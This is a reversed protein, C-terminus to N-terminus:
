EVDDSGDKPEEAPSEEVEEAPAEVPAEEVPTEEVPAEVVEEEVVPAEEEAVPAATSTDATVTAESSKAEAPANNVSGVRSDGATEQKPKIVLLVVIGVASLGAIVFLVIKWAEMQAKAKAGSDSLSVGLMLVPHYGTEDDQYDYDGHNTKTDDKVAYYGNADKVTYVIMYRYNGDTTVDTSIPNISGGVTIYKEGGEQVKVDAASDYILVWEDGDTTKAGNGSHRYVKYTVTTSSSDTIDLSTPVSYATGVKLGDAMKTKMSSSLAIEPSSTDVAYRKLCFKEWNYETVEEGNKESMYAKFEDTNYPTLVADDKTIDGNEGDVVVYRFMWWGSTQMSFTDSAKVRSWHEDKPDDTNSCYEVCIIDNKPYKYVPKEQEDANEAKPLWSAVVEIEHDPMVFQDGARYLLPDSDKGDYTVPVLWGAFVHADDADVAAPLTVHQSVKYNGTTPVTAGEAAFNAGEAGFSYTITHQEKEELEESSLSDPLIIYNINPFLEHIAEEDKLWDHTVEGEDNKLASNLQFKSSMEVYLGANREIVYKEFATVFAAFADDSLDIVWRTAEDTSPADADDALAFTPLAFMSVLLVMAILLSFFKKM